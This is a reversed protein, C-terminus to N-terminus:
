NAKALPQILGRGPTPFAVDKERHNRRTRNKAQLLFPPPLMLFHSSELPSAARQTPLTFTEMQRGM